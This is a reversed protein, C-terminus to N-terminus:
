FPLQAELLARNLLGTEDLLDLITYRSRIFRAAQITRKLHDESIGIQNARTPANAAALLSQLKATSLLHSRLRDKLKPWVIKLQAIRDEIQGLDLHKKETELLARKAIESHEFLSKIEVDKDEMTQYSPKSYALQDIPQELLWDYLAMTTLCGISVCAGHSVLKGDFQHHEMEWIHAIQHDAGSAPRSSGFFEMALGTLLLGIILSQLAGPEGKRIGEPNELCLRLNEQVLPWAVQDISELGLADAVIWDGGAPVKGALDGYGWGSMEPPASGLIDLDILILKPPACNHTIKFGQDSLVSGASAYGDMSAATPVCCYSLGAEFAAFKVLDNIVGTGVVVPIVNGSLLEDLLRRATEITPRPRPNAPFLFKKVKYGAEQLEKQAASGAVLWTNEDAILLVTSRGFHDLLKIPLNKLASSKIFVERITQSKPVFEALLQELIKSSSGHDRRTLDAQDMTAKNHNLHPLDITNLWHVPKPIRLVSKDSNSESIDPL